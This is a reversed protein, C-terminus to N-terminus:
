VEMMGEEDEGEKKIVQEGDIFTSELHTCSAGLANAKQPSPCPLLGFGVWFNISKDDNDERHFLSFM